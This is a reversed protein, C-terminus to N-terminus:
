SGAKELEFKLRRLAEISEDEIRSRIQLEDLIAFLLNPRQYAFVREFLTGETSPSLTYAVKGVGGGDTKGDITWKNPRDKEVVTWLARGKRGAVSFDEVVKEGVDLSHDTAGTVALSSPHWRPWNAPTTVYDFVDAPPRRIETTYAIHSSGALGLPLLLFAILAASVLLLITIIRLM